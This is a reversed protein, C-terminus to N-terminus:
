CIGFVTLISMILPNTLYTAKLGHVGGVRIVMTTELLVGNIFKQILTQRPLKIKFAYCITDLPNEAVHHVISTM